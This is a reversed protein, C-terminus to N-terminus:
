DGAAERYDHPVGRVPSALRACSRGPEVIGTLAAAHCCRRHGTQVIRMLSDPEVPVGREVDLMGCCSEVVDGGSVVAAAIGAAERAKIRRDIEAMAKTLGM